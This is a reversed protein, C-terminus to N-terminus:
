KARERALSAKRMLKKWNTTVIVKYLLDTLPV